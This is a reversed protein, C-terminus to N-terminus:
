THVHICVRMMQRFLKVKCDEHWVVDIATGCVFFNHDFKSSFCFFIFYFLIFLFPSCYKNIIFSEIVTMANKATTRIHMALLYLEIWVIPHPRTLPSSAIPWSMSSYFPPTFFPGSIRFSGPTWWDFGPPRYPLRWRTSMVNQFACWRLAEEKIKKATYVAIFYLTRQFFFVMEIAQCFGSSFFFSYVYLPRDLFYFSLLLSFFLIIYLHEAMKLWKDHLRVVSLFLFVTRRSTRM